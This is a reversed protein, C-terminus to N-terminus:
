PVLCIEFSCGLSVGLATSFSPCVFALYLLLFSITFILDYTFSISVFFLDIFSFSAERFLDVFNTLILIAYSYSMM